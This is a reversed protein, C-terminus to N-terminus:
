LPARLFELFRFIVERFLFYSLVFSLKEQSFFLLHDPFQLIAARLARACNYHLKREGKDEKADSVLVAGPPPM